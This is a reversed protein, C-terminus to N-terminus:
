YWFHARINIFNVGPVGLEESHGSVYIKWSGLCYALAQEKEMLTSKCVPLMTADKYQLWVAQAMWLSAGIGSIYYMLGIYLNIDKRSKSPGMWNNGHRGIIQEM